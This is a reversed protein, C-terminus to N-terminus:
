CNQVWREDFADNFLGVYLQVLAFEAPESVTALHFVFNLFLHLDPIENKDVEVEVPSSNISDSKSAYFAAM